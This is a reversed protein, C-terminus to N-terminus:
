TYPRAAVITPAMGESIMDSSGNATISLAYSSGPPPRIGRPLVSPEARGTESELLQDSIQSFPSHRLTRFPM